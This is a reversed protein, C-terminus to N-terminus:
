TILSCHMLKFFNDVPLAHLVTHFAIHPLTINALPGLKFVGLRCAQQLWEENRFLDPFLNRYVKNFSQGFTTPLSNYHHHHIPQGFEGMEKGECGKVALVTAM